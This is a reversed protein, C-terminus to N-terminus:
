IFEKALDTIILEKRKWARLFANVVDPDFCVGSDRIIKKIALGPILTVQPSQGSTLLDFVNAVLIIRAELPISTGKAGFRGNTGDFRENRYIIIDLVKSLFPIMSVAKWVQRFRARVAIAEEITPVIMRTVMHQSSLALGLDKLLTAHHLLQLENPTMNFENAITLANKAVRHACEIDFFINATHMQQAIEHSITLLAESTAIEDTEQKIWREHQKELRSSFDEALYLSRNCLIGLEQVRSRLIGLSDEFAAPVKISLSGLLQQIKELEARAQKRSVSTAFILANLEHMWSQWKRPITITYVTGREKESIINLKGGLGQVLLRAPYLRTEIADPTVGEILNRQLRALTRRNIYHRPNTIQLTISEENKESIGIHLQDGSVSTEAATKVLYLLSQALSQGDVVLQETDTAQVDISIKQQETQESVQKAIWKVFEELNVEDPVFSIFPYEITVLRELVEVILVLRKVSQKASALIKRGKPSNIEPQELEMQRLCTDTTLISNKIDGTLTTLWTLVGLMVKSDQRQEQHVTNSFIDIYPEMKNDAIDYYSHSGPLSKLHNLQEYAARIIEFFHHFAGDENTIVAAYLNIFPHKETAELLGERRIRYRQMDEQNYLSKKKRDFETIIRRCLTKAKHITTIIVFDDGGLHGVLDEKNGLRKIAEGAIDALLQIATNGHTFGYVKNIIKLKDIDLYITVFSRNEAILRNIERSIPIENPLGTQPDTDETLGKRRLYTQVLSVIEGPNFPREIYSDAAYLLKLAKDNESGEEGILIIPIHCTEPSEKLQRCVEINDLDTLDANLLIVDPQESSAKRLGEAGNTASIVELNAQAFNTELIGALEPDHNVDLIKGLKLASIRHNIATM